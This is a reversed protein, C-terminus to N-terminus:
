AHHEAYVTIGTPINLLSASILIGLAIYAIIRGLTYMLGSALVSPTNEVGKVMYSVAAINSALPCPSISTLIGLWFASIIPVIQTEM